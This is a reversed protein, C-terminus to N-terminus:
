NVTVPIFYDEALNRLNANSDREQYEFDAQMMGYSVQAILYDEAEEEDFDFHAVFLEKLKDLLVQLAKREEMLYDGLKAADEEMWAIEVSVDIMYDIMANVPDPFKEAIMAEKWEQSSPDLERAYQEFEAFKFAWDKKRFYLRLEPKSMADLKKRKARAEKLAKRDEKRLPPFKEVVYMIFPVALLLPSVVWVCLFKIPHKVPYKLGLQWWLLLGPILMILGATIGTLLPYKDFEM